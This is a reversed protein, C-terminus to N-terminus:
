GYSELKKLIKQFTNLNRSTFSAKLRKKSLIKGFESGVTKGKPLNWYFNNQIVLASEGKAKNINEFEDKLVCDIGDTGVFVYIHYDPKIEFPNNNFITQIEEKRKIFLFSEYTFQDSMAKELLPKLENENRDSTFLINGSALVSTVHEMGVKQFVACVEEMKMSTGKVNVGRLFACFNKSYMSKNKVTNISYHQLVNKAIYM